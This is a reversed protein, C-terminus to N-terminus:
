KDKKALRKLLEVPHALYHALKVLAKKVSSDGCKKLREFYRYQDYASRKEKNFRKFDRLAKEPSQVYPLAENRFVENVDKEFLENHVTPSSIGGISYDVVARDFFHFKVGNRLLRLNMSHDEIYRYREDFLGYKEICARSRATCCGFIYNCVAISNFLQEPTFTKIEEIQQQSPQEWMYEGNQCVAMKATSVLAGTDTFFKVWDAIVENDCFRDDGGLNFIYEGCSAKIARNVTYVTGMNKENVLVTFKKISASKNKIVYDSIGKMDFEASGDDIIIYEIDPYSQHIVSNISRLLDKSNYSLSIVTATM